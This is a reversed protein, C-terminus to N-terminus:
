ILHIRRFNSFLVTVKRDTWQHSVSTFKITIPFQFIHPLCLSDLSNEDRWNIALCFVLCKSGKTGTTRDYPVYSGRYIGPKYIELFLFGVHYKSYLKVFMQITLLTWVKVAVNDDASVANKNIDYYGVKQTRVHLTHAKHSITIHGQQLSAIRFKVWNVHFTTTLWLSLSTVQFWEHFQIM